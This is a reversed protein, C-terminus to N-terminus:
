GILDIEIDVPAPSDGGFYPRLLVRPGWWKSKRKVRHRVADSETLFSIWYKRGSLSIGVIAMVVEDPRVDVLREMIREGNSYVYSWLSIKDGEGRWGIRVSNQHIDLGDSLGFLKNIDDSVYTACSPSFRVTKSVTKKFTFPWQFTSTYHNGATIKFKM